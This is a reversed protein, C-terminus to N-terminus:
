LCAAHTTNFNIISQTIGHTAVFPWARVLSQAQCEGNWCLQFCALPRNVFNISWSLPMSEVHMRLEKQRPFLMWSLVDLVSQTSAQYGTSGLDLAARNHRRRRSTPKSLGNISPSHNSCQHYQSNPELLVQVGKPLCVSTQVNAPQRACVKCM